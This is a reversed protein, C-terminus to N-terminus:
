NRANGSLDRKTAELRAGVCSTLLRSAPGGMVETYELDGSCKILMCDVCLGDRRLVVLCRNLSSSSGGALRDFSSSFVAAFPADFGAFPLTEAGLAFLGFLPVHFTFKSAGQAPLPILAHPRVSTQGPSVKSVLHLM